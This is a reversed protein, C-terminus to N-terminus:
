SVFVEGSYVIFFLHDEPRFNEEPLSTDRPDTWWPVGAKEQKEIYESVRNKQM